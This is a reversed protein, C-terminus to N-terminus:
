NLIENLKNQKRESLTRKGAMCMSLYNASVGIKKAIFKIKFGSKKIKDIYEQEMFCIYNNNNKIVFLLYFFLMM